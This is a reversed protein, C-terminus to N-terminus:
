AAAPGAPEPPGTGQAPAEGEALQFYLISAVIAIIPAAVISGITSFVLQGGDGMGGGIANFIASIIVTIVFTIVIVGFVDWGKGRVLEHSRGFAEIGGRREIVIVPATVAWITLLFLGPVILLVLGIVVAIAKLVGNVILGGVASAARSFLEGVSSDRRGGRVDEVLKVVFGSYLTTAILSVISAIAVLFAGGEAYLAGQILGAIVFVAAASGLLVALNSRYIRFMDSIVTGIEVKGRPTQM